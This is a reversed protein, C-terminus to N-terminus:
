FIQLDREKYYYPKGMVLIYRDALVSVTEVCTRKVCINSRRDLCRSCVIIYKNLFNSQLASDSRALLSEATETNPLPSEASSGVNKEKEYQIIAELSRIPEFIKILQLKTRTIFWTLNTLM